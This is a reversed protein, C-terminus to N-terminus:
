KSAAGAAGGPPGWVYELEAPEEDADFMVIGMAGWDACPAEEASVEVPPACAEVLARLGAQVKVGTVASTLGAIGKIGLPRASFSYAGLAWRLGAAFEHDPVDGARLEELIACCEEPELGANACAGGIHGCLDWRKGPGEFAKALQRAVASRAEAAGPADSPDGIEELEVGQLRQGGQSALAGEAYDAETLDLEVAESGDLCVLARPALPDADGELFLPDATYHPQVAHFTAPDIGNRTAWRALPVNGTPEKLWVWAHGRVMPSLHQSASFQFV